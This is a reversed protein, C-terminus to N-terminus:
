RYAPCHDGWFDVLVPTTSALVDRHFSQDTVDRLEPM